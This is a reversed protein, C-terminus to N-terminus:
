GSKKRLICWQLFFFFILILGLGSTLLFKRHKMQRLEANKVHSYDTEVGYIKKLTLHFLPHLVSQVNCLFLLCELHKNLFSWHSCAKWCLISLLIFYEYTILFNVISHHKRLSGLLWNDQTDSGLCPSLVELVLNRSVAQYQIWIKSEGIDADKKQFSRGKWETSLGPFFLIVM